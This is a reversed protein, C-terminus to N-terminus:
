PEYTNFIKESEIQKFIDHMFEVYLEEIVRDEPYFPYLFILFTEVWKTISAKRRYEKILVHKNNYINIEISFINKYPMPLVTASASSGLIAFFYKAFSKQRVIRIDVLFDNKVILSDKLQRRKSDNVDSSYNTYTDYNKINSFEQMADLFLDDFGKIREHQNELKPIVDMGQVMRYHSFIFCVDVSKAQFNKQPTLEYRGQLDSKFTACGTLSGIVTILTGLVLYHYKIM